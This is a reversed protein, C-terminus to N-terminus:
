ISENDGKVDYFTLVGIPQEINKGVFIQILLM